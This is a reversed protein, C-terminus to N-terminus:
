EEELPHEIEGAMFRDPDSEFARLCAKTCFYIRQGRYDANPYDGPERLTGGCATPYTPDDAPEPLTM